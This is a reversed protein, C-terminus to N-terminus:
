KLAALDKDPLCTSSLAKLWIALLLVNKFVDKMRWAMYYDYVTDHRWPSCLTRYTIMRIRKVEYLYSFFWILIRAMCKVSLILEFCRGRQAMRQCQIDWYCRHLLRRSPLFLSSQPKWTVNSEFHTTTMSHFISSTLAATRVTFFTWWSSTPLKFFLILFSKWPLRIMHKEDSTSFLTSRLYSRMRELWNERLRITFFTNEMNYLEEVM